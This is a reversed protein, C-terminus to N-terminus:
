RESSRVEWCSGCASTGRNWARGCRKSRLWFINDRIGPLKYPKRSLLVGERAVKERGGSALSDNAKRKFICFSICALLGVVALIRARDIGYWEAISDQNDAHQAEAKALAERLEPVSPCSAAAM